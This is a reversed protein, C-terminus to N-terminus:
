SGADWPRASRSGRRARRSPRCARPSPRASRGSSRAPRRPRRCRSRGRRRRACRSARSTGCRRPRRGRGALVPRLGVRAPERAVLGLRAAENGPRPLRELSEGPGAEGLTEDRAAVPGAHAALDLREAELAEEAGDHAAALGRAALGVGLRQEDRESRSESRRRRRRRVDAVAGLVHRHRLRGAGERDANGPAERVALREGGRAGVHEGGLRSSARRARSRYCTATVSVREIGIM